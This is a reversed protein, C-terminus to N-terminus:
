SAESLEIMKDLAKKADKAIDKPVNIEYKTDKLSEYLKKLTIKKM